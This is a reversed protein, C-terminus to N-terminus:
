FYKDAYGQTPCQPKLKLKSIRKLRNKVKPSFDFLGVLSGVLRVFVGCFGFGSGHVERHTRSTSVFNIVIPIVTQQGGSLGVPFWQSLFSFASEILSYKAQIWDLENSTLLLLMKSLFMTIFPIFFSHHTLFLSVFTPLTFVVSVGEQVLFIAEGYFTPTQLFCHPCLFPFSPLIFFTKALGRDTICIYFSALTMGSYYYM